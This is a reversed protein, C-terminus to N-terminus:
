GEMNAPSFTGTAPDYTYGIDCLTDESLEVLMCGDPAPDTPSAVIVNQVINSEINVVACKM